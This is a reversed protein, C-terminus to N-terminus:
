LQSEAQLWHQVDRGQPSGEQLYIEYAKRAVEDPSPKAKPTSPHGHTSGGHPLHHSFESSHARQAHHSHSHKM